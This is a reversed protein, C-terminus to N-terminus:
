KTPELASKPFPAVVGSRTAASQEFQALRLSEDTYARQLEPEPATIARAPYRVNRPCREIFGARLLNAALRPNM